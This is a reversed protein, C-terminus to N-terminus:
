DCEVNTNIYKLRKELYIPISIIEKDILKTFNM